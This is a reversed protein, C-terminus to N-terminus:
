HQVAPNKAAHAATGNRGRLGAGRRGAAGPLFVAVRGDPEARQAARGAAARGDACRGRQGHRRVPQRRGVRRGRARVAGHRGPRQAGVRGRPAGAGPRRHGGDHRALWLGRGPHRGARHGHPARGRPQRRLRVPAAGARQPGAAARDARRSRRGRRHAPDPARPRRWRRGRLLGAGRFREVVVAPRLHVPRGHWADAARLVPEAHLHHHHHLHRAPPPHAPRQIGWRWDTALGLAISAAPAWGLRTAALAALYQAVTATAAFSIDIGGAVLVVLLGVAMIATVSAGEAVDMWNGLTWFGPALTGFLLAMAAIALGLRAVPHHLLAHAHEPMSPRRSGAKPICGPVFEGAMRGGRMHLVRDCHAHVEAVEDSVIVAMGQAALGTCSRSARGTASTWAGTPSDLILLRPATALWRALVVRQANGGSLQHVPADLAPLRMHLRDRWQAATAARRRAPLWGLPGSLRPLMALVLNDQVSQRLNLGLSQRDEPVYAIGAAMADRNSRLALTRGGLRISGRDPRRMGFLGLALETRGAGLLGTLGLIEGERVDFSVDEYDGDRGLGRVELLAPAASMDRAHLREDVEQGTMLTALQRGSLQEAPWTGLKRGDRLVTVRDAIEMVEDLKHSVFVIAMGDAQLRRVVALLADVEARTLSATPEDMFLLRARAAMGRCIAVLQRGAIPLDGVRADLPLAIGLRRLVAQAAERQRRRRVPAWWRGMAQDFAINEAVSLNPFLSLDQYIVQIGLSKALAPDLRQVTQGGIDIRAGPQPAHVGSLVKIATSKGSGNSGMLCHVEGPMVDWDLAHLATADGFRVTVAQMRVLATTTADM